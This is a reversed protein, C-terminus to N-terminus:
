PTLDLAESEEGVIARQRLGQVIALTEMASVGFRRLTRRAMELSLELEGMVVEDVGQRRLHDVLELSHSRVVVELEPNAHRAYDVILRTALADPVAVVLLRAQALHAKELLVPNDANGLLAPVGRERLRRVLQIDHEIVVFPLNRRRLAAGIVRGVRGYGCIVAHRRPAPEGEAARTLRKALASAPLRRELWRSAPGALRYLSPSLVISGVAAALMLSFASASVSGLDTGLRALLFSFEGAQALLVGTLLATRVSRTFGWTLLATILGKGIVILALALLVLPLNEWVFRPDVLMGVSVFFLGALIDRLPLVEGLIRHALDSESVIMGAVFAGLALSLGFQSSVYAAGLIVVAVAVIFVERNRLAAVREFLWPLVRPGVLVLLALFAGAKALAGLLDTALNDGGAALAALVVMLVITSLDQITSWALGLRGHEAGTEGGEGLLKGLVASSSIAIVAGFFLAELPRWGLGTGVAFGLGLTLLVQVTGGLVAVRGMRLLDRVSIEVGITFLLLVIGIDALAEVARMDGVFGPTFPGIAIGALIYGLIVSQGLRVALLAGVLAAALALVLNVLLHASDM